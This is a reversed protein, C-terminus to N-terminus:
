RGGILSAGALAAQGLSIGGDNPPVKENIWVRLSPSLGDRVASLLLENQFVGGSLVVTDIGHTMCIRRAADAVGRALGRHFARAIDSPERGDLRWDIVARLAPRFDLEADQFAFPASLRTESEAALQELWVAAQGEFTVEGDFGVLAAVADFLRGVSTTPFVRINTKVLERANAFRHGFLFPHAAMNPADDLASLYGAAAQIPFRAAADGGPLPASRLHAVRRLGSGLSGVFFEGGWIAGDEGYGTGDFAIGLCETTMDGREALVSAVHARHHQVAQHKAAPLTRAFATSAYQPHLDHAVIMDHYDLRYMGAFDRAAEEFARAADYHELDGIHQSVIAQGGVVLTITNKLDAGLALIPVASQLAVVADTAYGRARRLMRPVGASVRVVSDEVRRAIAREGLLIADAIGNLRLIADDDDYAIPESSRNGSTMVLAEPAGAAFLLHHLPTYPLMLGLDSTGPAVHPLDAAGPLLVIPRAPTALLAEAERSVVAIRRAADIERVMVAFPKHKRFKRVRLAAVAMQNTADCALHYGGLGKIAIVSGHHLLDAARRIAGAEGAAVSLGEILKYGPGCQACAMPQAHFRRSAPDEYEQQCGRCLTWPFMTTQARDYPLALVVSLRPGCNSCNIYPYQYRRDDPDFLERVCDDCVAIDPSIRATPSNGHASDRVLFAELGMPAIAHVDIADIRAAAPPESRLEESFADLAQGSGEVHIAIGREDNLVWGALQHRHALRYVFPRFGVGQVVGSIRLARAQSAPATM